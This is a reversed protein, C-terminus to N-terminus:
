TKAFKREIKLHRGFHPDTPEVDVISMCAYLSKVHHVSHVKKKLQKCIKLPNLGIFILNKKVHVFNKGYVSPM